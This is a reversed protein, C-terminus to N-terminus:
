LVLRGCIVEVGGGIVVVRRGDSNLNGATKGACRTNIVAQARRTKFHNSPRMKWTIVGTLPNYEFCELLYEQSPLQKM